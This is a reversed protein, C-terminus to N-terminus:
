EGANSDSAVQREEGPEIVVFGKGRLKALYGDASTLQSFRLIALTSANEALSKEAQNMWLANMQAAIDEPVIDKAITSELFAVTCANGPDPLSPIASLAALDATAWAHARANMMSQDSIAEVLDRVIDESGFGSKSFAKGQL